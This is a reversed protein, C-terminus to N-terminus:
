ILPWGVKIEVIKRLVFNQFYYLYIRYIKYAVSLWINEYSKNIRNWPELNKEIWDLYGEIKTYVGPEGQGCESTGYSVIGM